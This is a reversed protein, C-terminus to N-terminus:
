IPGNTDETMSSDRAAEPKEPTDGPKHDVFKVCYEELTEINNEQMTKVIDEGVYRIHWPQHRVGTVDEQGAPYRLIFGFKGANEAVWAAEPTGVFDYMRGNDVSLDLALGSQNESFGPRSLFNDLKERTDSTNPNYLLGEYEFSRYASVVTINLNEQEAAERLRIFAAVADPNARMLVSGPIPVMGQPVYEASVNHFKNILLPTKSFDTIRVPDQYLNLDVGANVRWVVEDVPMDPNAEQFAAYREMKDAEFFYMDEIKPEGQILHMVYAVPISAYQIAIHVPKDLFKMVAMVPSNAVTRVANNLIPINVRDSKYLFTTSSALAAIILIVLM